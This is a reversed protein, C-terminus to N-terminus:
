KEFRRIAEKCARNAEFCGKEANWVVEGIGLSPSPYFRELDQKYVMYLDKWFDPHVYMAPIEPELEDIYIDGLKL